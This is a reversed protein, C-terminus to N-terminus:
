SIPVSDGNWAPTLVPLTAWQTAIDPGSHTQATTTFASILTSTSQLVISIKVKPHSKEYLAVEKKIWGNAGPADSEAWYWYTLNANNPDDGPRTTGSFASASFAALGVLLAAGFAGLLHKRKM